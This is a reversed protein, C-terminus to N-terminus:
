EILLGPTEAEIEDWETTVVRVVIGGDLRIGIHYTYRIGPEWVTIPDETDYKTRQIDKLLISPTLPTDNVTFGVNLRPVKSEYAELKTEYDADGEEPALSGDITDALDGPILLHFETAYNEDPELEESGTFISVNAGTRQSDIWYYEPNGGSDITMKAYASQIINNVSVSTLTLDTTASENTVIVKVACLMHNFVLNVPATRDAVHGQRRTAAMLLDHSDTSITYQSKVAMYGPIDEGDEMMREAPANYPHVAIFDYFNSENVWYWYSLPSYTWESAGRTVTVGQFNGSPDPADDKYFIRTNRGEGTRRGFVTFQDGESFATNTNLAKTSPDSHTLEIGARFTIAGETVSADGPYAARSCSGFTFAALLLAALSIIYGPRMRKHFLQTIDM